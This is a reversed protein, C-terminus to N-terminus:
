TCRCKLGDATSIMVVTRKQGGTPQVKATVEFRKLEIIEVGDAEFIGKGLRFNSATALEKLSNEDISESLSKM